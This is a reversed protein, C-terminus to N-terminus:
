FHKNRITKKNQLVVIQSTIFRLVSIEVGLFKQKLYGFFDLVQSQWKKQTVEGFKICTNANFTFREVFYEKFTQCRFDCVRKRKFEFNKKALIWIIKRWFVANTTYFKTCRFFYQRLAPKIQVFTWTWVLRLRHKKLNDLNFFFVIHFAAASLNKM